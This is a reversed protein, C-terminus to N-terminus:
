CRIVLRAKRERGPGIKSKFKCDISCCIDMSCCVRSRKCRFHFNMKRCYQHANRIRRPSRVDMRLSSKNFQSKLCSHTEVDVIGCLRILAGTMKGVCTYCFDFFFFPKHTSHRQRTYNISYNACRFPWQSVLVTCAGVLQFTLSSDCRIFIMTHLTYRPPRLSKAYLHKRIPWGNLDLGFAYKIWRFRKRQKQRKIIIICFFFGFFRAFSFDVGFRHFQM